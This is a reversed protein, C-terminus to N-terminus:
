GLYKIKYLTSNILEAIDDINAQIETDAPLKSRYAYVFESLQQMYAEPEEHKVTYTEPFSVLMGYKGQFNEVLQDVLGPIKEYYKQLAKHIAFKRSRLHMIHTVTRSHLLVAAFGAMLLDGGTEKEEPLAVLDENLNDDEFEEDEVLPSADQAIIDNMAAQENVFFEFRDNIAEQVPIKNQLNVFMENISTNEMRSPALQMFGNRDNELLKELMQQSTTEDPDDIGAPIVKISEFTYFKNNNSELLSQIQDVKDNGAVMVVENFGESEFTQMLEVITALTSQKVITGFSEAIFPFKEVYSLLDTEENQTHAVYVRPEADMTRATSIVRNVMTEHDVTVPNMRSFTFVLKKMDIGQLNEM